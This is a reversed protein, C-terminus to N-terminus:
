IFEEMGTQREDDRPLFSQITMQDGRLVKLMEEVDAGDVAEIFERVYEIANVYESGRSTERTAYIMDYEYSTVGSEINVVKQVPKDLSKLQATYIDLLNERGKDDVDWTDGGYFKNMAEQSHSANATRGVPATPFNILLDGTPKPAVKKVTEWYVDLGQNDIFTPHNFNPTERRSKAIKWIDSVVNEMEKNTNGPIVEYADPPTIELDLEYFAHYLRDELAEVNDSDQEIFYMKTFPEEAQKAALIASGLFCDGQDGYVSVGSGALADIYFFDEKHNSIVKTYMNVTAAHLILKLASWTDFENYVNPYLEKLEDSGETLSDVRDMVWDRRSDM